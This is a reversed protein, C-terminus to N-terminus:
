GFVAVFISTAYAAAVAGSVTLIGFIVIAATLRPRPGSRSVSALALAFPLAAFLPWLTFTAATATDQVPTISTIMGYEPKNWGHEGILLNTILLGPLVLAGVVTSAWPWRFAWPGDPDPLGASPEVDM